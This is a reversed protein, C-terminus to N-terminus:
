STTNALFARERSQLETQLYEIYDSINWATGEAQTSAHQIASRLALATKGQFRTQGAGIAGLTHADSCGLAALGVRKALLRAVLNSGLTVIGANHVEIGDLNAQLLVEPHQLYRLANQRVFGMEIHFPHALIAVGGVEHIAQVTDDLNMKAPIPTTVWLALIHGARSSVEVGPVIDFAYRHQHDIAWLASDLADHDTIAVVNLYPRKKSIFELVEQVTYRGDSATTHIHLDARGFTETM